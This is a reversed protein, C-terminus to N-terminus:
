LMIINYQKKNNHMAKCQKAKCKISNYQRKNDGLCKHCKGGFCFFESKNGFYKAIKKFAYFIIKLPSTSPFNYFPIELRKM